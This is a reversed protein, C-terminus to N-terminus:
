WRFIHTLQKHDDLEEDEHLFVRFHNTTGDILNVKVLRLEVMIMPFSPITYFVKQYVPIVDVSTNINASAQFSAECEYNVSRFRKPQQQVTARGNRGSFVGGSDRSVNFM